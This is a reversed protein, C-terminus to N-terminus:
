SHRGLAALAVERDSFHRAIGRIIQYDEHGKGAVLVADGASARAIALEIAAARDREVTAKQPERLGALIDAIIAEGDENRPNDDTVVVADALTEAIAVMLPRKGVDREGGCGFVCYLRGTCHARLARLAKELADPTHAYDIVVLPKGSTRLMEMRGPPASCHELAELAERLPVGLGLLAALVALVNDVNFAGILQSHVRARGWSSELEITLGTPETTYRTACIYRGGIAGHEARAHERGYLTLPARVRDVLKRGFPDDVNVIAHLLTPWEFLRAKAEGYAEFTGHYDLHDRTLNTFLASHFRVGAVRQQALAHSTVEMAVCRAGSGRLEALERHVTICDPTTHAHARVAGLRGVGLTGMYAASMGLRELAEALVHATTTKGNTGTIAVVRLENSPQDFFRDAITGLARALEPVRVGVVGNPLDPPAVQPAPEWLVARAGRAIAEEVFALGHTRTGRLAVFAAGPQVKRSDLMLDRVLADGPVDAALNELLAALSKGPAVPSRANM